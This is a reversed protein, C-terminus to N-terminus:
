TAVSPTNANVLLRECAGLALPMGYSLPPLYSM